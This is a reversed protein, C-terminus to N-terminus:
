AFVSGCAECRIEGLALASPFVRVSRCQCSVKVPNEGARASRGRTKPLIGWAGEGATNVTWGHGWAMWLFFTAKALADPDVSEAFRAITLARDIRAITAAYADATADTVDPTTCGIGPETGTVLGWREADERFAANHIGRQTTGKIGKVAHAAHVSEHLLTRFVQRAGRGLGEAAILVEHQADQRVTWTPNVTFHGYRDMRGRDMSVPGIIVVVNPVEPHIAQIDRWAEELTLTLV